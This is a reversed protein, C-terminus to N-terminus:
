CTPDWENPVLYEPEPIRCHFPLNLKLSSANAEARKGDQKIIKRHAVTYYKCPACKLPSGPSDTQSTSYSQVSVKPPSYYVFLMTPINKVVLLKQPNAVLIPHNKKSSFFLPRFQKTAPTQVFCRQYRFHFVVNGTLQILNDRRDQSCILFIWTNGYAPHLFFMGSLTPPPNVSSEDTQFRCKLRCM